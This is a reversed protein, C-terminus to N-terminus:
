YWNTERRVAARDFVVGGSRDVGTACQLIARAVEIAREPTRIGMKLGRRAGDLIAWGDVHEFVTLVIGDRYVYCEPRGNRGTEFDTCSIM